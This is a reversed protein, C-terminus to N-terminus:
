AATEANSRAMAMGLRWGVAAADSMARRVASDVDDVDDHLRHPADDRLRDLVERVRRHAKVFKEDSYFARDVCGSPVEWTATDPALLTLTELTSDLLGHLRSV